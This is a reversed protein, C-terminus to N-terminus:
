QTMGRRAVLYRDRGFLDQHVAVESWGSRWALAAVGAARSCDVELMLWGGAELVPPVDAVLRRTADLGDVGSWLAPEPEWDRVGPGLALYEARTLYPPNSVVASFLEGAVPAVLDGALLRVPLDLRRANEAAVALADLSADTATVDYAGELALSLAICGSGTGVDLVRGSPVLARVLDVLGETEPRPILVRRDVSVTLHRFGAVGSVYAIPEGAARRGVADTFRLALAASVPEEGRLVVEGPSAGSLDGLLRIAERRPETLGAMRFRDAAAATLAAFTTV